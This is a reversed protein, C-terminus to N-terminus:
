TDRPVSPESGTEPWERALYSYLACDRFGHQSRYRDRVIGELTFGLREAIARSPTNAIDCEIQLRNLQLDGFAYRCLSRCARTMIGKGRFRSDLAFTIDASRNWPHVAVLSIVGVLTQSQWIGARFGTKNSLAKLGAEVWPLPNEPSFAWEGQSCSLDGPELGCLADCDAERLIRLELDDDVRCVLNDPWDSM